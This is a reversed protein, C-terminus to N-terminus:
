VYGTDGVLSVIYQGNALLFKRRGLELSGADHTLLAVEGLLQSNALLVERRGFEVSGPDSTVVVM